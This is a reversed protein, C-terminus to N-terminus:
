VMPEETEVVQPNPASVGEKLNEDDFYKRKDKPVFTDQYFQISSGLVNGVGELLVKKITKSGSFVIHEAVNQPNYGKSKCENYFRRSDMLIGVQKMFDVWFQDQDAYYSPMFRELCQLKVPNTKNIQVEFVKRAKTLVRWLAPVARKRPAGMGVNRPIKFISAEKNSTTNETVNASAGNEFNSTNIM